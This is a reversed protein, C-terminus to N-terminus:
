RQAHHPHDFLSGQGVITLEAVILVNVSARVEELMAPELGFGPEDLVAEVMKFKPSNLLVEDLGRARFQAKQREMAKAGKRNFAYVKEVNEDRLLHELTDCGFGGTTGTILVVDKGVPREVLIESRAPLHSSYKEVYKWLDEPKHLANASGGGSLNGYIFRSLSGITPAAFVLNMPIHQAADKDTERVARLITNRIWTAQLSCTCM